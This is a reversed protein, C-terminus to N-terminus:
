SGNSSGNSFSVGGGNQNNGFGGVGAGMTVPTGYSGTPGNLGTMNSGSNGFQASSLSSSMTPDM